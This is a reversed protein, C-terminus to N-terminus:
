LRQRFGVQLIVQRNNVVNITVLVVAGNEPCIGSMPIIMENGGIVVKVKKNTSDIVIAELKEGQRIRGNYPAPETKNTRVVPRPENEAIDDFGEEFQGYGVNTKAGAGLTKIIEEFLKRKNGADLAPIVASNELKFRFEIKVKPMIKLFKLPTPNSFPDLEANGDKNKHPTIYDSGLLQKRNGGINNATIDVPVADFFVDREYVPVPKVIM